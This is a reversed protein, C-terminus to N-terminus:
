CTGQFVKALKEAKIKEPCQKFASKDFKKSTYPIQAKKICYINTKQVLYQKKM